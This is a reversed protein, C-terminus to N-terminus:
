TNSRYATLGVPVIAVSDIGGSLRGLDGITNDLEEKDNLDPCLVIQCNMKINNAALKTLINLIDGAFRNNLIKKRLEGDTTHVSINIPSIRYKIIRGIDEESMNTLTIYNGQLFSLRFDDDKFYLSPRMDSPLQDIFCFVCRNKCSKVEDIIPKEFEIGLDDDYEKEIEIIWYEGSVKLIEIELYEDALYYKYDIIDIIENDNIKLLKDGAEIGVEEAISGKYVKKIANRICIEKM